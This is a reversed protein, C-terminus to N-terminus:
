YTRGPTGRDKYFNVIGKVPYSLNTVIFGVRPFLQEQYWEVKAVVRRPFDWSQAQYGFDHYNVIPKPSLWETPRVLLHAIERQLVDNTPLRIAYGIHRAEMYEYLEPKAFAADARFLLRVALKLYREM